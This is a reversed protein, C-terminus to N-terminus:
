RPRVPAAQAAVTAPASTIPLFVSFTTGRGQKTDVHIWGQHQVVIGFATPLGLGTGDPKTTFFPDWIREIVDPPMGTGTDSVCLVAFEGPYADKSMGRLSGPEITERRTSVSLKGGSPMADRANVALNLLVQELMTPDANVMLEKTSVRLEISLDGLLRRMMR